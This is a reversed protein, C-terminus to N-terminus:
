LCRVNSSDNNEFEADKETEGDDDQKIAALTHFMQLEGDDDQKTLIAAL